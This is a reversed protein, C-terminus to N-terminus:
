YNTTKPKQMSMCFLRLHGNAHLVGKEYVLVALMDVVPSVYRYHLSLLQVKALSYENM